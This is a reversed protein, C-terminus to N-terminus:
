GDVEGLPTGVEDGLTSGDRGGLSDARGLADGLMLADGVVVPTGLL